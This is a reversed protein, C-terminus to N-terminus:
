AHRFYFDGENYQLAEERSMESLSGNRLGYVAYGELLQFLLRRNEESSIEMQILPRFRGITKMFYPFIHTEYGEVDCKVFDLRELDKFLEDPVRMEVEYTQAYQEQEEGIVRTLGHRFVGNVEPTGMRISKNEAGLAYPVIQVNDCNFRELNKKLLDRFLLVPEVAYVKGEEGTLESLRTSYYGVNAGLDICVDGKRIIQNLFFLEPYKGRFFGLRVLRIYVSSVLGLYSKTGLLGALFKRILRM